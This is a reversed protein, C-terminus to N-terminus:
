SNVRETGASHFSVKIMKAGGRPEAKSQTPKTRLSAKDVHCCLYGLQEPNTHSEADTIGPLISKALSRLTSHTYYTGQLITALFEERIQTSM